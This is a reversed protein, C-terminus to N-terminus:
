STPRPRGSGPSMIQHLGPLHWLGPGQGRVPGPNARGAGPVAAPDGPGNSVFLGDPKHELIAEPATDFPVVTVDCGSQVLHRLINHKAGCDIAVVKYPKTPPAIHGQVPEWGSLDAEWSQTEGRSVTKVLNRGVLLPAQRAQEVLQADSQDKLPQTSLVGKLAGEIRLKRTLARTDIGAIGTVGNQALWQELKQDSRFNSALNSLERVIFGRVHIKDSELDDPNVGYNGIQTCTMAVIQGAYSPDTLVEQYGSLSTNFCM